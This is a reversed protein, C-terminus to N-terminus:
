LFVGLLFRIIANAAPVLFRQLTGTFVFLVLLIYFYRQYQYAQREIRAPLFSFLIKSGDLPPIPMLNFVAFYVNYLLLLQLFESWIRSAGGTYVLLGTSLAALLLNMGAGAFSVLIMGAKRSRFRNPNIPVPRAWGFRFLLMSLTGMPDLHKLPNLSLRGADRATTDGMALAAGGHALEHAVITILLSALTILLNEPFLNQISYM